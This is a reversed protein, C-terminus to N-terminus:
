ARLKEALGTVNEPCAPQAAALCAEEPCQPLDVEDYPTGTQWCRYLIRIWKFALARLAAQHSSGKNRQQRYFAGAWFSKNITQAAWEIFTQTRVDQQAHERVVDLPV